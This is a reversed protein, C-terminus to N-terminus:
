ITFGALISFQFNKLPLVAFDTVPPIDNYFRYMLKGAVHVNDLRFATGVGVQGFLSLMMPDELLDEDYGYHEYDTLEIGGACGLGAEVFPDVFFWRFLHYRFDWSALWTMKWENDIEPLESSQRDFKAQYTMGFGLHRIIVEWYLGPYINTQDKFKSVIEEYDKELLEVSGVAGLRFVEPFVMISLGLLLVAVVLTKKM